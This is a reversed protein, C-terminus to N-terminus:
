LRVQETVDDPSRRLAALLRRAATLQIPQYNDVVEANFSQHFVRRHLRWQSGYNKLTFMSDMGTSYIFLRLTPNLITPDYQVCLNIMVSQPRDSYNSSKKDLLDRAAKYSGIVLMPQGLANLYVLEGESKFLADHSPFFCPCPGRLNLAGYKKSMEHYARGPHGAPVDLANGIFPLPPPGPPNHARKRRTQVEHFLLTAAIAVLTWTWPSLSNLDVM